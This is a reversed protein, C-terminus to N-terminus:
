PKALQSPLVALPQSVATVVSTLSQPPQPITQEDDWTATRAHVFPTQVPVQLGPKASQLLLLCFSPPSVGTAVSTLLQPPQPRPHGAWGLPAGVQTLPAQLRLQVAPKAFQLPLRASPQSVLRM